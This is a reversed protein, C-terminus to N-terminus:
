ECPLLAKVVHVLGGDGTGKGRLAYLCGVVRGRVRQLAQRGVIQPLGVLVMEPNADVGKSLTCSVVVSSLTETPEMEGDFDLVVVKVEELDIPGILASM